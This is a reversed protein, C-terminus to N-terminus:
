AGIWGLGRALMLLAVAAALVAFSYQLTAPRLRHALRRGAWLALVAGGGFPGAVPWDLKGLGHAAVVGSLAAMAIVALSTAAISRPDLDTHQTLSPVIVFGGGVGLLGALLGCAIGTSGLALACPPTWLL